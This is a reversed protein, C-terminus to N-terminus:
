AKWRGVGERSDIHTFTEYSGIGLENPYIDNLHKQIKQPSHESVVIDAARGLLHQSKPSGGVLSNHSKCRCGSLVTVATGYYQRLGELVEILRVDVTDFGCEGCLCEFEARDFHTSLDGM